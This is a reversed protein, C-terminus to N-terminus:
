HGGRHALVLRMFDRFLYLSDHPGPAAEPHYQVSFAKKAEIELGECTGDNLNVHTVKADPPLSAPDVAFGHNQATVEVHGTKVNQVPQNGGHHGFKLKFTRAGIAQGLLQHGLCIGFVPVKGLLDRVARVEPELKAPDGPGNSLFVGDPREALVEAATSTSPMVTVKFGVETLSRFINEKAGYDIAVVHPPPQGIGSARLEPQLPKDYGEDWGFRRGRTVERVLDREELKPAGRVRRLLEADDVSDTSILATMAGKDRIRRTFQRTDVGAIGVIKHRSLWQDLTERSRWNSAIRSLERVVFGALYPREAEDDDPNMGYNGILPSTMVVIQGRYSPDTLVEQYGTLSTNFVIEGFTEGRAGISTGRAVLGDELVLRADLPGSLSNGEGRV